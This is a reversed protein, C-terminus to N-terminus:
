MRGNRDKFVLFLTEEVLFLKNVMEDGFILNLIRKEQERANGKSMTSVIREFILSNFNIIVPNIRM